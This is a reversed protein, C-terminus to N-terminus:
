DELLVSTHKQEPAYENVLTYIHVNPFLVLIKKVDESVPESIVFMTAYKGNKLKHRRHMFYGNDIAELLEFFDQQSLKKM